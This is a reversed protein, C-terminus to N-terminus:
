NSKKVLHSGDWNKNTENIEIIEILYAV